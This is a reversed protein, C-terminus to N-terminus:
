WKSFGIALALMYLLSVISDCERDWQLEGFELWELGYWVSAIAMSILLALMTGKYISKIMTLTKNDDKKETNM